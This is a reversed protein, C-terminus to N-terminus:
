LDDEMPNDGFLGTTVVVPAVEAEHELPRLGVQGGSATSVMVQGRQFIHREATESTSGYANLPARVTGPPASVALHAGVRGTRNSKPPRLEYERLGRQHCFGDARDEAKPPYFDAAVHTTPRATKQAQKAECPAPRNHKVCSRGRV